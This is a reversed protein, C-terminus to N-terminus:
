GITSAFTLRNADVDVGRYKPEANQVSKNTSQPASTQEIRSASMSDFEHYPSPILRALMGCAMAVALIVAFRLPTAFRHM